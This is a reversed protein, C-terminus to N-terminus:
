EVIFLYFFWASTAWYWFNHEEEVYSSAFMLVGYLIIILTYFIGTSSIPTLKNLSLFTLAFSLFAISIGAILRPVDYNSAATSM